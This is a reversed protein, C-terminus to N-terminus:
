LYITAKSELRLALTLTRFFFDLTAEVRVEGAGNGVLARYVGQDGPRTEMIVLSGSQSVVFRYDEEIAVEQGSQGDAFFWQVAPSPSGLMRLSFKAPPGPSHLYIEEPDVM